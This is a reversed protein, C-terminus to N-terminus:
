RMQILGQRRLEQIIREIEPQPKHLIQAIESVHRRGDILSYVQRYLSPWLRIQALSLVVIHYPIELPIEIPSREQVTKVKKGAVSLSSFGGEGPLGGPSSRHELKWDLVGLPALQTDWSDWKYIKGQKSVFYCAYIVGEKVQLEIYGEEPLHRSASVRARFIGTYYLQQIIQHLTVFDVSFVEVSKEKSFKNLGGNMM